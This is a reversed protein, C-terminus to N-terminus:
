LDAEQDPEGPTPFARVLADRNKASPDEAWILLLRSLEKLEGPSRGRTVLIEGTEQGWRILAEIAKDSLM